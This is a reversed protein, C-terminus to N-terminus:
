NGYKSINKHIGLKSIAKDNNIILKITERRLIKHSIMSLFTYLQNLVKDNQCQLWFCVQFNTM